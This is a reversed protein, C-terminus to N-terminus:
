LICKHVWAMCYSFIRTQSNSATPQLVSCLPNPSAGLAFVCSKCRTRDILVTM